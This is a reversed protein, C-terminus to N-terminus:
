LRQREFEGWMRRTEPEIAKDMDEITVPPGEYKPCGYVEDVTTPRVPTALRLVVADGRDEIELEVGPRWGHRDRVAKPIIVQGKSSLRTKAM